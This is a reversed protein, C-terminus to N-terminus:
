SSVEKPELETYGHPSCGALSRQGHSEEPLFVRIPQWKRKWPMKRVLPDFRDRKDGANAPHDKVM